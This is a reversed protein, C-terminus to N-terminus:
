DTMQKPNTCAWQTGRPRPPEKKTGYLKTCSCPKAPSDTLFGAHCSGGLQFRSRARHRIYPRNLGQPFLGLIIRRAKLFGYDQCSSM